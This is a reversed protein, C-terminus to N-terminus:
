GTSTYPKHTSYNAAGYWGVEVHLIYELVKIFVYIHVGVHCLGFIRHCLGFIVYGTVHGLALGFRGSVTAERVVSCCLCSRQSRLIVVLSSALCSPTCSFYTDETKGPLCGINLLFGKISARLARFNSSPRSTSFPFYLM